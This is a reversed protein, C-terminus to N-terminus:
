FNKLHSDGVVLNLTIIMLSCFILLSIFIVLSGTVKFYLEIRYLRIIKKEPWGEWKINFDGFLNNKTVEPDLTLSNKFTIIGKKLNFM